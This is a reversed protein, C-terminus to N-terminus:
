PRAPGKPLRAHVGSPRLSLRSLCRLAFVAGRLHAALWARRFGRADRGLIWKAEFPWFRLLWDAASYNKIAFVIRQRYSMAVLRPSERELGVSEHHWGVAGGIYRVRLGSRRLRAMLDTEEYYAPFFEEDFGGLAELDARRMAFAAGTAYDVDRDEGFSGDDQRGMGIHEAMANPHLIGGAHQLTRTNPYYLRAGTAGITPDDRLPAALRRAADADLACDPNLFLVVPRRAARWGANNGGACGLNRGCRVVRDVVASAEAIEASGDSSANDVVIVELDVGRSRRLEELCIPLYGASNYALVVVSVPISEPPDPM